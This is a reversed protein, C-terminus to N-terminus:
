ASSPGPMADGVPHGTVHHRVDTRNKMQEGWEQRTAEWAEEGGDVVRKEIRVRPGKIGESRMRTTWLWLEKIEKIVM